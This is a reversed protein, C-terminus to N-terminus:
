HFDPRRGSVIEDGCDLITGSSRASCIRAELESLIKKGDKEAEAVLDEAAIGPAHTLGLEVVHVFAVEGTACCALQIGVEAAHESVAEGDVAILIKQFGSM